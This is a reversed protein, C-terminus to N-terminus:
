AVTEKVVNSLYTVYTADDDSVQLRYYKGSQLALPSGATDRKILVNYSGLGNDVISTVGVIAVDDSELVEFDAAALGTVGLGTSRKTVKMVTTFTGTVYATTIQVNLGVPVFDVLDSFSYSPTTFVLDKFEDPARFFLYMAFSLQGNDSPPLDYKFAVKARLGKVSTISKRTGVQHGQDTFLVIDFLKGELAALTQYDCTSVDIHVLASPIPISDVDKFGLNSTQITIDDTTREFNLVPFVM